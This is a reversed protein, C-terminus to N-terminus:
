RLMRRLKGLLRRPFSGPPLMEDKLSFEPKETLALLLSEYARSQRAESWFPFSYLATADFLPLCGPSYSLAVCPHANKWESAQEDPVLAAIESADLVPYAVSYDLAKFGLRTMLASRIAVVEIPLWFPEKTYGREKKLLAHDARAKSMLAAADCQLSECLFKYEGFLKDPEFCHPMVAMVASDIMSGGDTLDLYAANLKKNFPRNLETNLFVGNLARRSSVVSGQVLKSPDDLFLACGELWVIPDALGEESKVIAPALLPLLVQVDFKGIGNPLGGLEVSDVVADNIELNSPVAGLLRSFEEFRFGPDRILTLSYRRGSDLHRVMSSVSVALEAASGDIYQWFINVANRKAELFAPKPTEDFFVLPIENVSVGEKSVHAVFVSYLVEGLYGCIRKQTATLGEYSFESDFKGLISFEFECLRDFLQRKMIFCNYGLYKDGDLYSVLEDRYDPQLEECISILRDFAEDSVLGYAVMHERITKQPGDPTPVGKVSWYPARVLDYPEVNNRIALEDAIMYDNISYPSLCKDEIQAHDNAKHSKGDFCFYRRYHCQGVYDASLNKWAWYQGSMECFTFNRSSINEGEDDRQYGEITAKGLSGVHVPIFMDNKPTCVSKHCSVLIKIDPQESM